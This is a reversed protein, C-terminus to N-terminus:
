IDLDDALHHMDALATDKFRHEQNLYELYFWVANNPFLDFYLKLFL